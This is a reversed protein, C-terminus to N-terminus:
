PEPFPQPCLPEQTNADVSLSMQEFVNRFDVVLALMRDFRDDVPDLDRRIGATADRIRDFRREVDPFPTM